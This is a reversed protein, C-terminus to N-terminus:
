RRVKVMPAAKVLDAVGADTVKTGSVSLLRLGALGRLAALGKDTVATDALSLEQLKALGALPALGDDTVKTRFLVLTQLEGLGNLEDLGKDTVPDYALNLSRLQRLGKISALAGDGVGTAYLSLNELRELRGLPALDVDKLSSLSLDLTRLAALDPLAALLADPVPMDRLGVGVVQKEKDDIRFEAAFRALLALARREGDPRDKATEALAALPHEIKLEKPLTQRLETLAAFTNTRTLDLLKLKKLGTLHALGADTIPTDSLDLTELWEFNAVLALDADNIAAKALNVRIVPKDRTKLDRDIKAGKGQLTAAAQAADDARVASPLSLVCLVCTVHLRPPVTM